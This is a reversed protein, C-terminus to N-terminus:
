YNDKGAARTRPTEPLGDLQGLIPDSISAKAGNKDAAHIEEESTSAYFSRNGTKGVGNSVTPEAFLECSGNANKAVSYKYGNKEGRALASDILRSGLLDTLDGCRGSTNASMFITEASLLLHMSNIASGENAARRAALLNPIAIAMMVPLILLLLCNMVIGAIAFGKGGYEFPKKSAKVLAVIGIILGPLSLLGFLGGCLFFGVCGMVMSAIALGSKLKPPANQYPPRPAYDPQPANQPPFNQSNSQYDSQNQGFQGSAQEFNRNFAPASNAEVAKVASDATNQGFDTKCRKCSKAGAFNLFGCNPCRFSNM